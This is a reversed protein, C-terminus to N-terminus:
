ALECPATRGLWEVHHVLENGDLMSARWAPMGGEEVLTSLPVPEGTELAARLSPVLRQVMLILRGGIQGSGTLAHAAEVPDSDSMFGGESSAISSVVPLVGNAVSETVLRWNGVDVDPGNRILMKRDGAIFGVSPIGADTLEFVVKKNEERISREFAAAAAVPFQLSGRERQPGTLPDGVAREAREGSGVLLIAPALLPPEGPRPAFARSLQNWFMLDAQALADICIVDHASDPPNSNM